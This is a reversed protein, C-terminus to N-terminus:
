FVSLFIQVSLLLFICFLFWMCFFVRLNFSIWFNANSAQKKSSVLARSVFERSPSVPLKL